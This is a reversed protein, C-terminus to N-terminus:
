VCRKDPRGGALWERGKITISCQGSTITAMGMTELSVLSKQFRRDRPLPVDAASLEHLRRQQHPTLEPRVENQSRWDAWRKKVGASMAKRMREDGLQTINRRQTTVTAWRCNSPEYNGAANVRDLTHGEPREGMDELFCVFGSKGDEGFRWRDCVSVGRGGYRAFSSNNPNHCRNVMGAWAGYMFHKRWNQSPKRTTGLPDGARRWQMYHRHCMGRTLKGSRECGQVTCLIRM